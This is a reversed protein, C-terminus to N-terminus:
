NLFVLADVSDLAWSVHEVNSKCTLGENTSVDQWTVSNSPAYLKHLGLNKTM